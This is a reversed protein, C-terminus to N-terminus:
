SLASGLGHLSNNGQPPAYTQVRAARRLAAVQYAPALAYAAASPFWIYWTIAAYPWPIYGYAVAWIGMDGISTFLIAMAFAAWCRAILGRGLSVASRHLLIAAMVLVCLMPDNALEITEIPDMHKGSRLAVGVQYLQFVTFASVLALLVWDMRKLRAWVGAQRYVRLAAFLGLCLLAMEFPGALALGARRMLAIGDHGPTWAWKLMKVLSPTGLIHALVGGVAHCAAAALILIWAARMPDGRSFSRLVLLCLVLELVPMAGLFLEGPGDFFLRLTTLNGTVMWPIAALVGLVTVVVTTVVIGRNLM